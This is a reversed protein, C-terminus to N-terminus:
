GFGHFRFGRFDKLLCCASMADVVLELEMFSTM